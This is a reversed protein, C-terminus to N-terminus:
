SVLIHTEKHLSIGEQVSRQELAPIKEENQYVDNLNPYLVEESFLIGFLSLSILVDKPCIQENNQCFGRKSPSLPLPAIRYMMYLVDNM